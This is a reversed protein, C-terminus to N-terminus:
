SNLSGVNACRFIGLEILETFEENVDVKILEWGYLTIGYYADSYDYDEDNMEGKLRIIKERFTETGIIDFDDNFVEYVRKQEEQDNWCDYNYEKDIFNYVDVESKALLYTMIGVKTDKPASHSFLIKYLNMNSEGRKISHRGPM